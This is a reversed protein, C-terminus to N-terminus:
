RNGAGKSDEIASAKCFLGHIAAAILGNAPAACWFAALPIELSEAILALGAQEIKGNTLLDWILFWPLGASAVIAAMGFSMLCGIWFARMAGSAHRAAIAASTIFFLAMGEMAVLSQWSPRAVVAGASGAIAATAAVLRRISFQFRNAM